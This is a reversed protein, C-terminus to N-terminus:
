VVEIVKQGLGILGKGSYYVACTLIYSGKDWQADSIMNLEAESNRSQQYAVASNSPLVAMLGMLMQLSLSPLGEIEQTRDGLSINTSLSKETGNTSINLRASKYDKMSILIAGYTLNGKESATKIRMKLPMGAKLEAPADISIGSRVALLPSASLLTSNRNDIVSIMYAGGSVGPLSFRADGTGNLRILSGNGEARATNNLGSLFRLVDFDTIMVSVESRALREPGLYTGSINQSEGYIALSRFVFTHNSDREILNAQSINIGNREDFIIVGDNPHPATANEQAWSGSALTCLFILLLAKRTKLARM